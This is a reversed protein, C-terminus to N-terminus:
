LCNGTFGCVLVLAVFPFAYVAAAAAIGSAALRANRPAFFLALYLGGAALAPLLSAVSTVLWLEPDSGVTALALGASAILTVAVVLVVRAKRAQSAAFVCATVGGLAGALSPLYDLM